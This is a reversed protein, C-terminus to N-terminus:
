RRAKKQRKSAPKQVPDREIEGTIRFRWMGDSLGRPAASADPGADSREDSNATTEDQLDLELRYQRGSKLPETPRIEEILGHAGTENFGDSAVVKDSGDFLRFRTAYQPAPELELRISTPADVLWESTGADTLEFSATGADSNFIVVSRVVPLTVVTSAADAVADVVVPVAKDPCGLLSCSLLLAAARWVPRWHIGMRYRVRLHSSSKGDVPLTPYYVNHLSKSKASPHTHEEGAKSSSAQRSSTM